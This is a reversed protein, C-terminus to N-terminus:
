KLCEVERLYPTNVHTYPDSANSLVMVVCEFRQPGHPSVKELIMYRPVGRLNTVGTEIVVRNEKHVGSYAASIFINKNNYRQSGFLIARMPGLDASVRHRQLMRGAKKALWEPLSIPKYFGNKELLADLTNTAAFGATGSVVSVFLAMGAIFRVPSRM